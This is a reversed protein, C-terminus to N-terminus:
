ELIGDFPDQMVTDRDLLFNKKILLYNPYLSFITVHIGNKAISFSSEENRDKKIISGQQFSEGAKDFCKLSKEDSDVPKSLM